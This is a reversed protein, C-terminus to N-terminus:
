IEVRERHGAKDEAYESEHRKREDSRNKRQPESPHSATLDCYCAIQPKSNGAGARNEAANPEDQRQDEPKKQHVGALALTPTRTPEVGM